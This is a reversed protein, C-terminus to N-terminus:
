MLESIFVNFVLLINKNSGNAFVAVNQAMIWNSTQASDKFYETNMQKQLYTFNINTASSVIGILFFNKKFGELIGTALLFQPWKHCEISNRTTFLLKVIKLPM